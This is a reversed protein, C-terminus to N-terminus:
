VLPVYHKGQYQINLSESNLLFTPVFPHNHIVFRHGAKHHICYIHNEGLCRFYM